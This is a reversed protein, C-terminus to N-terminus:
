CLSRPTDKPKERAGSASGTAQGAAEGPSTVQEKTTRAVGQVPATSTFPEQCCPSLVSLYLEANRLGTNQGNNLCEQKM